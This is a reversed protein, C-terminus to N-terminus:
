HPPPLPHPLLDNAVMLTWFLLSVVDPQFRNVNPSHRLLTKVVDPFNKIVAVLLPSWSYMGTTDVQENINKLWM